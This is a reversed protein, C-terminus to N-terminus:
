DRLWNLDDGDLRCDRGASALAKEYDAIEQDLESQRAQLAAEDAARQEQYKWFADDRAKTQRLAEDREIRLERIEGLAYISYTLLGAFLGAAILYPAIRIM